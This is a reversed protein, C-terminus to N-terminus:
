PKGQQMECGTMAQMRFGGPGYAGVGSFALTSGAPIGDAFYKKCQLFVPDNVNAFLISVAAGDDGTGSLQATMDSVSIVFQARQVLRFSAQTEEADAALAPPGAASLLLFAMIWALPRFTM